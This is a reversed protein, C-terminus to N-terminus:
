LFPTFPCYLFPTFPCYIQHCLQGHLASLTQCPTTPKLLWDQFTVKIFYSILTHNNACSFGQIQIVKMWLIMNFFLCFFLDLWYIYHNNYVAFAITWLSKLYDTIPTLFVVSPSNIKSVNQNLTKKQQNYM